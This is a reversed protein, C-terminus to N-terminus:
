RRPQRMGSRHSLRASRVRCFPTGHFGTNVGVVVGYGHVAGAAVIEGRAGGDLAVHEVHFDAGIAVREEGAFLLENVSRAAHFAEGLFVGVSGCFDGGCFFLEGFACPGSYPRVISRGMEGFRLSWLAKKKTTGGGATLSTSGGARGHLIIM